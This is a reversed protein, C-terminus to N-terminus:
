FVFHLRERVMEKACVEEVIPEVRVCWTSNYIQQMVASFVGSVVCAYLWFWFDFVASNFGPLFISAAVVQWDFYGHGLYHLARQM